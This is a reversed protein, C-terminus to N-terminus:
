QIKARRTAGTIVVVEILHLELLIWFPSMRKSALGPEGPFHSNFHLCVSLCVSLLYVYYQHHSSKESISYVICDKSITYFISPDM